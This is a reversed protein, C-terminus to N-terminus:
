QLTFSLGAKLGSAKEYSPSLRGAVYKLMVSASGALPCTLWAQVFDHFRDQGALDAPTHLRYEADWSARLTLSALVLTSWAAEGRLRPYSGEAGPAATTASRGFVYDAAFYVRVPQPKYRARVEPDNLTASFIAALIRHAYPLESAVAAGIANQRGGVRTAAEFRYHADYSVFWEPRRAILQAFRAKQEETMQALPIRSTQILWAQEEPTVTAQASGYHWGKLAAGAYFANLGTTDRTATQFGNASLALGFMDGRGGVPTHGLNYAADYFVGFQSADTISPGVDLKYSFSRDLTWATGQASAPAAACALGILAMLGPRM